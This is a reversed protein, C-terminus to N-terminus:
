ASAAAPQLERRPVAVLWGSERALLWLGICAAIAHVWWMGIWEAVYGREVWVRSISLANSYIIYILLGVGLRSYRGERPSSRSLPVALLALVLLSVPSSMRWHLEARDLPDSSELLERTPKTEVPPVYDEDEDLRVPIGHEGFEVISFNRSGPVGEYRTGRYLVFSLSGTESDQVREGREALIVVIRDGVQRQLFVDHLQEGIVDRSYVVTGGSDPTAFRGPQLVSLQMAERAANKVDEIQRMAYPTQVLALWSIFAALLLTLGGVPVLLRIPGVGCASLAAMESDRSLRALALLVGLFLGIPALMTLYSLSTLGLVFFVADRPLRDTAADGLIQAFQNSMLILFLSTVVVALVAVCERFVYRSILSV